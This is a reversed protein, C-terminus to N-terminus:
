RSRDEARFMVWMFALGLAVLTTLLLFRGYLLVTM